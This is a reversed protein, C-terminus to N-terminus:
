QVKGDPEWRMADYMADSGTRVFGLREYLARARPNTKAVHLSVARRRQQLGRICETGIGQSRFQPLLAIDVLMLSDRTEAVLLRGAAAGDVVIINQELAPYAAAYSARQANFQMRLLPEAQAASWGLAAIDDRTTAYLRFLFEDDEATATRFTVNV